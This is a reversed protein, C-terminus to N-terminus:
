YRERGTGREVHQTSVKGYFVFDLTEDLIQLLCQLLCEFSVVPLIDTSAHEVSSRM